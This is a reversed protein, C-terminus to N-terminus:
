QKNKIGKIQDDIYRENALKLGTIFLNSYSCIANLLVIKDDEKIVKNNLIEESICNFKQTNLTIDDVSANIDNLKMQYTIVDDLEQAIKIKKLLSKPLIHYKEM